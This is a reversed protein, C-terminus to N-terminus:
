DTRGIWQDGARVLHTEGAGRTIRVVVDVYVNPGWKPGDRAVKEVRFPPVPPRTEDSFRSSWIDNGAIVWLFNMDIEPAIELSDRESLQVLAILPSGGPSAIPMFDRWLSTVLVYNRDGIEVEESAALLEELTYTPGTPKTPDDCSPLLLILAATMLPLGKAAM